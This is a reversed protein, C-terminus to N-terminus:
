SKRSASQKKLTAILKALDEAQGNDADKRVAEALAEAGSLSSTGKHMSNRLVLGFEAAALSLATNADPVAQFEEPKVPKEMLRSPEHTVHSNAPKLRLSITCIEDSGTSSRSTYKLRPAPITPAAGAPVIEYLATVCKGAGISSAHVEDNDFDEAKLLRNEYGLLRYELVSEPNFEIQIKVDDAVPILTGSAEWALAKKADQIDGVFHYNGNGHKSMTEMKNDKLNEFGYGLITLYIGKDRGEEVISRMASSSSRGINFDGDTAILVRNVGGPQFHKEAISYATNLGLSGNTGGGARFLVEALGDLIQGKNACAIGDLVIGNGDAYYLLSIRDREGLNELMDAYANLALPLKNLSLMSGSVDAVLVFNTDPKEQADDARIGVRLIRHERNWPCATYATSIIFPADEERDESYDYSFYNVLEEIRVQDKEIRRGHLIDYKLKTYSATDVSISFTSLPSVAASQFSNERIDNYESTNFPDEKEDDNTPMGMSPSPGGMGYAQEAMGFAQGDMGSNEDAMVYDEDAMAYGHSETSAHLFDPINEDADRSYNPSPMRAEAAREAKLPRGGKASAPANMATSNGGSSPRSLAQPLRSLKSMLGQAFGKKEPVPAGATPANGVSSRPPASPSPMPAFANPASKMAMGMGMGPPASNRGMGAPASMSMNMTGGMLPNAFGSSSYSGHGADERTLFPDEKKILYSLLGESISSLMVNRLEDTYLLCSLVYLEADEKTIYGAEQAEMVAELINGRYFYSGKESQIYRPGQFVQNRGQLARRLLAQRFGANMELVMEKEEAATMGTGWFIQRRTKANVNFANLGDALSDHNEMAARISKNKEMNEEM